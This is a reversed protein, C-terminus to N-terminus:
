EGLTNGDPDADGTHATSGSDLLIQGESIAEVDLQRIQGGPSPVHQPRTPPVYRSGRDAHNGPPAPIVGMRVHDWFDDCDAYWHGSKGCYHCSYGFKRILSDNPLRGKFQSAKDISLKTQAHPCSDASAIARQAPTIYKNAPNHRVAQVSMEVDLPLTGTPLAAQTRLKNACSQIVTSVETYTPTNRADALSQSVAYEFNQLDVGNPAVASAQIILGYLEDLSVNVRKLNAIIKHWGSVWLDDVGSKDNIANIFRDIIALKYRWNTKSCKKKLLELLSQADKTGSGEVISLLTNDITNRILITISEQHDRSLHNFATPDNLFSNDRRLARRLTRDVAAEWQSYNSGDFSLTVKKPNMTNHVAVPDEFFKKTVLNAGSMADNHPFHPPQVRESQEVRAQLNNIVELLSEITPGSMTSHKAFQREDRASYLSSEESQLRQRIEDSEDSDELIDRFLAM